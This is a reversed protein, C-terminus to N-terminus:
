TGEPVRPRAVLTQEAWTLASDDKSSLLYATEKAMVALSADSWAGEGYANKLWTTPRAESTLVQAHFLDWAQGSPTEHLSPHDHWMSLHALLGGNVHRYGHNTLAGTVRKGEELTREHEALLKELWDARLPVGDAEMCFVSHAGIQGARWAEALQEMLSSWMAGPGDPHGTAERRAQMTTTGFKFGCHLRTAFLEASEPTDYRRFFCLTVDARRRVELDALLRALRLAKAEDQDYYQIALVIGGPPAQVLNERM